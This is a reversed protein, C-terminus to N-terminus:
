AHKKWNPRFFRAAWTTVPAPGVAWGDLSFRILDFPDKLFNIEADVKLLIQAWMGCLVINHTYIEFTTSTNIYIYEPFCSLLLSM